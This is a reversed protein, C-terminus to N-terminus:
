PLDDPREISSATPVYIHSKTLVLGPCKDWTFAFIFVTNQLWLDNLTCCSYKTQFLSSEVLFASQFKNQM